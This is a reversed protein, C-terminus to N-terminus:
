NYTIKTMDRIDQVRKEVMCMFENYKDFGASQPNLMGIGAIIGLRNQFLGSDSMIGVNLRQPPISTYTSLNTEISGNNNYNTIVEPISTEVTPIQSNTKKNQCNTQRVQNNMISHQKVTLKQAELKQAELKQAELKQAEIKQAELKRAEKREAALQQARLRQAELIEKDKRMQEQQNARIKDPNFQYHRSQNYRSQRLSITKKIDIIKSNIKELEQELKKIELNESNITVKLKQTDLKMASLEQELKQTEMLKTNLKQQLQQTNIQKTNLKQELEQAELKYTDVQRELRPSISQVPTPTINPNINPNISVDQNPIQTLSTNTDIYNLTGVTEINNNTSQNNVTPHLVPNSQINCIINEFPDTKSDITETKVTSHLVPNSQTNCIINEFPDTKVTPHLIPNSQINCIINEFPDPKPNISKQEEKVSKTQEILRNPNSSINLQSPTVNLLNFGQYNCSNLTLVKGDLKDINPVRVHFISNGNVFMNSENRIPPPVAPRNNPRLTIFHHAGVDFDLNFDSNASTKVIEKMQENYIEKISKNASQTLNANEKYIRAFRDYSPNMMLDVFMDNHSTKNDFNNKQISRIESIPLNLFNNFNQTIPVKEFTYSENYLRTLNNLERRTLYDGNIYSDNIIQRNTSPIVNDTM